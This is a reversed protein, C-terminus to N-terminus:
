RPPTGFATPSREPPVELPFLLDGANPRVQFSLPNTQAQRRISRAAGAYDGLSLQLQSLRQWTEYNDPALETAQGLLAAARADDGRIRALNAEVFLPEVSLPNLKQALDADAARRGCRATAPM